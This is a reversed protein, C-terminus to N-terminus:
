DEQSMDAGRRADTQSKRAGHMAKLCACALEAYLRDDDPLTDILEILLQVRSTVAHRQRVLELATDGLARTAQAFWAAPPVPWWGGDAPADHTISSQCPSVPYPPPVTARIVVPGVAVVPWLGARTMPERTVIVVALRRQEAVERLRRADAGVMPPQVLYCGPRSLRRAEAPSSIVAVGGAELAAERRLRRAECLATAVRSLRGYDRDTWTLLLARRAYSEAPGHQMREAALVAMELLQDALGPARAAGRAATDSM